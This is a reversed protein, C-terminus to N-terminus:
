SARAGTSPPKLGSRRVLYEHARGKRDVVRLVAWNDDVIRVEADPLETQDSPRSSAPRDMIAVKDSGKNDMAWQTKVAM